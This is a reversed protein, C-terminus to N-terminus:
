QGMNLMSTAINFYVLLSLADVITTILPSAMIAPDLGIKKALMPLMCGLLKALIVAGMLTVGVVLCVLWLNMGNYLDTNKYVLEYMLFIRLSNVLALTAGVILAIRLEKFM